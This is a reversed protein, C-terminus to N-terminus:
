EIEDLKLFAAASLAALGDEGSAHRNRRVASPAVMHPYAGDVPTQFLYSSEHHAFSQTSLELVMATPPSPTSYLTSPTSLSKSLDQPLPPSTPTRLQSSPPPSLHLSETPSCPRPSVAPVMSPSNMTESVNSNCPSIMEFSSASPIPYLYMAHPSPGGEASHPPNRYEAPNCVNNLHNVSSSPSPYIHQLHRPIVLSPRGYSRQPTQGMAVAPNAKERLAQSTKEFSRGRGIDYWQGSETDRLLFRGPPQATRILDVISHALFIKQKRTARAYEGKNAEVIERFRQNGTHCISSRGKGCLVDNEGFKHTVYMAQSTSSPPTVPVPSATRPVHRPQWPTSPAVCAQLPPSVCQVFPSIVSDVFSQMMPREGRVPQTPDSSRNHSSRGYSNRQVM